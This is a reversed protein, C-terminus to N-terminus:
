RVPRVLHGSWRIKWDYYCFSLGNLSMADAYEEWNHRTSSWYYARVKSEGSYGDEDLPFYIFAGNKGIFKICNVNGVKTLEWKLSTLERIQSLSPMRWPAGWNATAADYSTGGIDKGIDHYQWDLYDELYHAHLYTQIKFDSKTNTEGWAYYNGLDEPKSAGLNSCAWKTGSKLGLDIMHPHNNDPCGEFFVTYTHTEGKKIDTEGKYRVYATLSVTRRPEDYYYAYRKDAYPNSGLGACSIHKDQNYIDHYIYGWDAVKEEAEKDLEVTTTVVFKYYYGIGGYEFGKQESYKADTQEFNIIRVPFSNGELKVSPNALMDFDFVVLKPQLSYSCDEKLGTFRTSITGGGSKYQDAANWSDVQKGEEDKVVLGVTLPLVCKGTMMARADASTRPSECRTFKMADFTPVLDWKEITTSAAPGFPFNLQTKGLKAQINGSYALNCEISSNKLIQYIKTDKSAERIDNNYLVLHGVLEAGLEGRWSINDWKEKLACVGMEVFVGSSISGDIMAQVDFENTPKKAETWMKLPQESRKKNYDYHLTTNFVQTWGANLSATLAAKVFVGPKIYFYCLPFITKKYVRLGFDKSWELGGYFSIIESLEFNANIYGTYQKSKNNGVIVSHKLKITPTLSVEGKTGVKWVLDDIKKVEKTYEAGIAYSMTPMTWKFETDNSRTLRRTEVGENEVESEAVATNYYTEFIDELEVEDCVITIGDTAITVSNVIGAFGAEFKDNMELTVLKEGVKPILDKPTDVSLLLTLNELDGSIVYPMLGEEIRIVGPQYVTPPTVFSISDIDALPILYADEKLMIVQSVPEDHSVGLTDDYSYGMEVIEDRLFAQVDGNKEYVYIVDGTEPQQALATMATLAMFIILYLRSALQNMITKM